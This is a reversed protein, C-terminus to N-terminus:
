PRVFAAREAEVRDRIVCDLSHDNIIGMSQM